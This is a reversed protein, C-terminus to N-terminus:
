PQEKVTIRMNMGHCSILECEKRPLYIDQIANSSVALVTLLPSRVYPCASQYIYQVPLLPLHCVKLTHTAQLCCGKLDVEQERCM